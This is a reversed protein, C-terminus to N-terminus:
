QFPLWHTCLHLWREIAKLKGWVIRKNKKVMGENKPAVGLDPKVVIENYPKSLDFLALRHSNGELHLKQDGEFDLENMWECIKKYFENLDDCVCELKGNDREPKERNMDKLGLMDFYPLNGQGNGTVVNDHFFKLAICFIEMNRLAQMSGADTLDQAYLRQSNNTGKKSIVISKAISFKFEQGTKLKDIPLKAYHTIALASIFEVINANNKQDQGGESYAIHTPYFDGVYYINEIEKNLDSDKYYNIAAKTKSYFLKADIAGGGGIKPNPEFYPLVLITSIHATPKQSRIAQVLAPIGSAGTGGFLSGIIVIRDQQAQNYTNILNQFLPMRQLDNLVVSGINPNGKFGVSMDINLETTDDDTSTDYLSKLLKETNFTKGSLSGSKIYDSYKTQGDPLRFQFTFNEIGGIQKIDAGFFQCGVGNSSSTGLGHAAYADDHTRKYLTLIESARNKDANQEDYDIIVPYVDYNDFTPEGSALLMTLSRLVRGGTGGIGLIFLKSKAM